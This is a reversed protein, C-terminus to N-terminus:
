NNPQPCGFIPRGPAPAPAKRQGYSNRPRRCTSDVRTERYLIPPQSDRRVLSPLRTPRGDSPQNRHPSPALRDGCGLLSHAPPSSRSRNDPYDPYGEPVAARAPTVALSDDVSRLISMKPVTPFGSRKARIDYRTFGTALEHTGPKSYRTEILCYKYAVSSVLFGFSSGQVIAASTSM